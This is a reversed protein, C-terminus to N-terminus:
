TTSIPRKGRPLESARPSITYNTGVNLQIRSTEDLTNVQFTIPIYFGIIKKPLDGWELCRAKAHGLGRM